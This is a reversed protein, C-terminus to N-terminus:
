GAMQIQFQLIIFEAPRTPAFGLQVRMVGAQIDAPTMTINLGVKVFYSDEPTSGTLGGQQWLSNMFTSISNNVAIWTNADNPEFVYSNLADMISTELFIAMRRVPVYRWENHNGALTRAGWVLVGQGPFERIANVAKGDQPANLDEQESSTINVPLGVVNSISVNAPAKWVGQSEDTATYIGTLAASPPLLNVNVLVNSIIQQYISSIGLLAQHFRNITKPDTAQLYKRVTDKYATTKGLDIKGDLFDQNFAKDLILTLSDEKQNEIAKKLGAPDKLKKSKPDIFPTLDLLKKENGTNQICHHQIQDKSVINTRLWPYYAAGYSLYNQGIKDRFYDIVDEPVREKYGDPIDLISFISKQTECFELMKQHVEAWEPVASMDISGNANRPVLRIAEPIVLMTVGPETALTEIGAILDEKDISNSIFSGAQNPDPSRYTGVSVIFCNQGGNNFFHKISSFLCFSSEDGPTVSYPAAANGSAHLHYEFAPGQGFCNVFEQLSSIRTPKNLVSVGNMETKETYGVFAPCSTNAPVISNPFSNIETIYVGPTKYSKAM